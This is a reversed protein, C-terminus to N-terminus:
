FRRTASMTTRAPTKLVTRIRAHIQEHQSVAVWTGHTAAKPSSSTGSFLELKWTSHFCPTAPRPQLTRITTARGPMSPMAHPTSPPPTGCARARLGGCTTARKRRALSIPPSPFRAPRGFFRGPTPMLFLSRARFNAAKNTRKPNGCRLGDEPSSIPVFSPPQRLYKPAGTIRSVPPDDVKTKWVMASRHAAISRTSTPAACRGRIGALSQQATRNARDNHRSSGAWRTQIGLITCGPKACGAFGLEAAVLFVRGGVSVPAASISVAGPLAYVWKLKLRPLDAASFGPNPQYRTNSTRRLAGAMGSRVSSRTTSIQCPGTKRFADKAAPQRAASWSERYPIGSGNPTRGRESRGGPVAHRWRQPGCACKGPVDARDNWTVAYSRHEIARPLYRLRAQLDCSRGSEPGGRRHHLSCPDPHNWCFSQGENLIRHEM